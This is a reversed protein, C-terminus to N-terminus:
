IHSRYRYLNGQQQDCGETRRIVHLLRSSQRDVM